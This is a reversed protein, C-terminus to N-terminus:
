MSLPSRPYNTTGPACAVKQISLESIFNVTLIRGNAVGTLLAQNTTITASFPQQYLVLIPTPWSLTNDDSSWIPRLRITQSPVNNPGVGITMSFDCNAATIPSLAANGSTQMDVQIAYVRVEENNAQNTNITNQISAGSLTGLGAGTLDNFNSVVSYIEPQPDQNAM